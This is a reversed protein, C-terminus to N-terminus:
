LTTWSDCIAPDCECLWPPFLRVHCKKNTASKYKREHHDPHAITCDGTFNNSEAQGFFSSSSSSSNLLWRSIFLPSFIFVWEWGGRCACFFFKFSAFRRNIFSRQSLYYYLKPTKKHIKKHKCSWSHFLAHNTYCMVRMEDNMIKYTFACWSYFSVFFFRFHRFNEGNLAQTTYPTTHRVLSTTHNHKCMLGNNLDSRSGRGWERTMM